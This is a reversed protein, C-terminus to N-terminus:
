LFFAALMSLGAMALLMGPAAGAAGAGPVATQTPTASDTDDEVTKSAEFREVVFEAADDAYNAFYSRHVTASASGGSCAWDNEDCWSGIKPAYADCATTNKRPFLGNVTATGKNWTETTNHTPDGFLVVAVVALHTLQPIWRNFISSSIPEMDPFLGSVEGCLLDAVVHAGQSYGLLAVKSSPCRSTYNTLAVKLAAVGEAVSIYYDMLKITQLDAPYDLPEIRSGPVAEVVGSAVVGIRGPGPPENSGRAAIIHLGSACASTSNQAAAGAALLGTLATTTARM